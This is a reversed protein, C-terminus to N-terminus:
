SSGEWTAWLALRAGHNPGCRWRLTYRESRCMSGSSPLSFAGLIGSLTIRAASSLRATSSMWRSTCIRVAFCAQLESSWFPLTPSSRHCLNWRASFSISSSSLSTTM